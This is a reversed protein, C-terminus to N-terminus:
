EDASEELAPFLNPSYTAVRQQQAEDKLMEAAVGLLRDSVERSILNNQPQTHKGFPVGHITSAVILSSRELKEIPNVNDQVVTAILSKDFCHTAAVMVHLEACAIPLAGSRSLADLLDFAKTRETKQAEQNLSSSTPKKLLSAQSRKTWRDGTNIVTASLM